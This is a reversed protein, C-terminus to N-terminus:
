RTGFTHDIDMSGNDGNACDDLHQQKTGGYIKNLNRIKAMQLKKLSLKKETQNKKKM